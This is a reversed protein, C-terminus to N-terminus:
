QGQEVEPTLREGTFQDRGENRNRRRGEWIAAVQKLKEDAGEPTIGDSMASARGCWNQGAPGLHLVEWPPRVKKDSIQKVGPRWGRSMKGWKAQFFSDAGGCHRWDIQHWPPEGLVPDDAHFIQSYGVWEYVNRHAPFESWHRESPVRVDNLMMDDYRIPLPNHPFSDWMRRLPSCIQGPQIVKDEKIYLLGEENVLLRKPWLVDADMLCLWGRRDMMDLGYELARWKNFVAGDQYFLDTSLVTIGVGDQVQSVVDVVSEFCRHDTVIWVEEFHHRNYPLTIRLLDSYDVAVMIARM